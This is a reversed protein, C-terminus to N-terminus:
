QRLAVVTKSKVSRRSAKRGTYAKNARQEKLWVVSDFGDPLRGMHVANGKAHVCKKGSKAGCASCPRSILYIHLEEHEDDTMIPCGYGNFRM